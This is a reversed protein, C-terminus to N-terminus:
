VANSINEAPMEISSLREIHITKTRDIDRNLIPILIMSVVIAIKIIVLAAPALVDKLPKNTKESSLAVGYAPSEKEVIEGLYIFGKEITNRASESLSGKAISYAALMIGSLTLGVLLSALVEIGGFIGLLLPLLIAVAMPIVSEFFSIRAAEKVTKKNKINKKARYVSEKEGETAYSLDGNYKLLIANADELCINKNLQQKTDRVVRKKLRKIAGITNYSLIVPILAGVVLGSIILPKSMNIIDQNGIEVFAGLIALASLSTAVLLFIQLNSLTLRGKEILSKLNTLENEEFYSKVAINKATKNIATFAGMSQQLAINGIFAVAAIAVGYFNAFYYTSLGVALILLIPVATALFSMRMTSLNNGIEGNMSQGAIEKAAKRKEGSFLDNIYGLGLSAAVGILSSWFIGLSYYTTSITESATQRVGEWQEPLLFKIAFYLSVVLAGAAVLESLKIAFKSNSPKSSHLFFGAVISTLIGIGIVFLPLYTLMVTKEDAQAMNAGLLIASVTSISLVDFTSLSIGGVNSVLQGVNKLLASPNFRSKATIKDNKNVVEDEAIEAAQSLLNDSLIGFASVCGVGFIFFVFIPFADNIISDSLGLIRVLLVNITIGILFISVNSLGAAMSAGFARRFGKAYSKETEELTYNGSNTAIFKALFSAAAASVTGVLFSTLGIVKKDTAGFFYVVVAMLAAFLGLFLLRSNRLIKVGEKIESHIFKTKKDKLKRKNIKYYHWFSFGLGLVGSALVLYGLSQTALLALTVM